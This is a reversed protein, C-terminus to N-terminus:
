EASEETQQEAGEIAKGTYYSLIALGVFMSGVLAFQMTSFVPDVGFAPVVAFAAIFFLLIGLPIANVTLDLLTEKEFGLLSM